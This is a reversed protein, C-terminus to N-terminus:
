VAGGGMFGLDTVPFNGLSPLAGSLEAPSLGFWRGLTAAYQEVAVQPILRGNGSDYDHGVSPAPIAGYVRNGAVGGGVVFHHSGWGHDTGNGNEILARGFDSATFLTVDQEMGLEITAGHFAAIAASYQEQLLSLTQAQGDHTDFGGMGVFYIQRSLGLGASAKIAEAVARLQNGVSSAPFSTAVDGASARAARFQDNASFSRDSIAAVDREFLNARVHGLNRYQNELLQVAAANDAQTGLLGSGFNRLGNVQPPGSANLIYQRAQNGSLFVANGFVSIATFIENSNAGAAMAADAFRGGWGFTEGEPASSMWTSQQDNHSFLHKPQRLLGAQYDARTLPEILPGVNGVIAAKGSDFLTKLPALSEPLAFQRGGFTGGNTPALPLLRSRERTSGGPQGAYDNLLGPRLAAYSDYSAQDYPLITDHGDQGGYLFLCVLAKYGSTEAAFAPRAGLAGILGAGAAFSMAGIGGGMRLFHRRNMM